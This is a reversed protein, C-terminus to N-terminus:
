AAAREAPTLVKRCLQYLQAFLVTARFHDTWPGSHGVEGAEPYRVFQTDFAIFDAGVEVNHVQEQQLGFVAPYHRTRPHNTRGYSHAALLYAMTPDAMDAVLQQLLTSLQVPDTTVAPHDSTAM